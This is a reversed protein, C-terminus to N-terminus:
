NSVILKGRNGRHVTKVGRSTECFRITIVIIIIIIIVLM